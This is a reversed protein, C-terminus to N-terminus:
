GSPLAAGRSTRTSTKAPEYLEVLIKGGGGAAVLFFNIRTGDAGPRAQPYVPALDFEQQLLAVACDLDSCRYEVQQIGEGFKSLYRAIAGSGGPDSTTLVDLLVDNPYHLEFEQADQDPPIQALRPSGNAERVKAFTAPEVALGVTVVPISGLLAQFEAHNRWLQTAVDASNRGTAYIETAATTRAVPDASALAAIASALPSSM